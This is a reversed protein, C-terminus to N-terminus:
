FENNRQAVNGHTSLVFPLTALKAGDARAVMESSSIRAAASSCQWGIKNPFQFGENKWKEDIKNSTFILSKRTEKKWIEYELYITEFKPNNVKRDKEFKLLWVQSRRYRYLSIIFSTKHERRYLYIGFVHYYRSYNGFYMRLNSRGVERDFFSKFKDEKHFTIINCYRLNDWVFLSLVEYYIIKFFYM